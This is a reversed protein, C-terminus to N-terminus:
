PMEDLGPLVPLNILIIIPTRLTGIIFIIPTPCCSLLNCSRPVAEAPDNTPQPYSLLYLFDYSSLSVKGIYMSVTHERCMTVQIVLPWPCLM